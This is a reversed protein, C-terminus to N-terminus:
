RAAAPASSLIATATPVASSAYSLSPSPTLMASPTAPVSSGPPRLVAGNDSPGPLVTTTVTPTPVAGPAGSTPVVSYEPYSPPLPSSPSPRERYPDPSPPVVPGAPLPEPQGFQATAVAAAGGLLCVACAAAAALTLRRRRTGLAEIRAFPAPVSLRRGGSDAARKLAAALARDPDGHPAGFPPESM